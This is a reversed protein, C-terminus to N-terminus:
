KLTINQHLYTELAREVSPLSIGKSSKLASYLPRKAKWNMSALPRRDIMPNKQGAHEASLGAFDAWSLIGDNCVHWIGEEGDILLDLAKHVLHPVYTPSIMVDDVVTVSERRRLAHLVKYVFNDRDWPGFFASSRIILSSPYLLMIKQEARAKSRGYENIPTVMDGETYPLKKEGNFVLDSSFTMFRIGYFKCAAALLAPGSSNLSHCADKETEADDVRVFGATNVIAWPKYFDLAARVAHQDTIDLENRSLAVHNIGRQSCLASFAYALTGHKGIVLLPSAAKNIINQPGHWWGKNSLLPHDYTGDSALSQLQRAIATPRIRHNTIDFVGSEYSGRAQTLLSDWDFSGLLAWATVARIDIGNAKWECAVHWIEDIWRLQEERTCNLHAETIAIPIQYRAWLEGLLSGIGAAKGARVAETDVYTHIANGGACENPYSAVNEDLYRESTVYYNVGIIEPPSAHDVFFQLESEKIGVSLLYHWLKHNSNVKGCLLDYTLWRRENEFDAQYQLLRTSHVKALDETQVLKANPNFRRIAEMSLVVGKVESLLMKAFSPASREHPYWVGYLGSFRATTLPENVPTYYEIWPFKEAVLAAYGALKTPFDADALNTFSPGSGHHLLGAIVTIGNDRIQALRKETWSWDIVADETPQHREWLVPYRLSTIGLSAFKDIDSDRTYHGSRALQDMFNDGVRNITCEIGGWIEPCCSRINKGTLM